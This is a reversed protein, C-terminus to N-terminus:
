RALRLDRGGIPIRGVPNLLHTKGEMLTTDSGVVPEVKIHLIRVDGGLESLRSILKTSESLGNAPIERVDVSFSVKYRAANWASEALTLQWMRAVGVVSHSGCIVCADHPSNTILDCNACYVANALPIASLVSRKTDTLQKEHSWLARDNFLPRTALLWGMFLITGILLGWPAAEVCIIGIAAVALMRLM